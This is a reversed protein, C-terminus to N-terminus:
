VNEERVTGDQISLIRRARRAINPDHTVVIVTEGKNNINELIDM